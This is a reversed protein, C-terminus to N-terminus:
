YTSPRTHHVYTQNCTLSPYSCQLLRTGAEDAVTDLTCQNGRSSCIVDPCTLNNAAAVTGHNTNTPTIVSAAAAAGQQQHRQHTIIISTLANLIPSSDVSVAATTAATSTTASGNSVIVAVITGVWVVFYISATTVSM